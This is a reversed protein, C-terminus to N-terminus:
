FFNGILMWHLSIRELCVKAVKAAIRRFADVAGPKVRNSKRIYQLDKLFVNRHPLKKQLYKVIEQYCAKFEIKVADLSTKTELQAIEFHAARGYDIKHISLVISKDEVDITGLQLADKRTKDSNELAKPKVFNTMLKFFVDGIANYLVQVVPKSSQLLMLFESFIDAVHIAFNLFLLTRNSLLNTRINQYRQNTM